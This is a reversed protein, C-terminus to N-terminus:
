ERPGSNESGRNWSRNSQGPIVPEGIFGTVTRIADDSDDYSISVDVRFLNEIGSESVVARWHWTTNAFDVDGSTASVEPIINALRLETIKNQAIWSAYTRERMSNSTDIMRGMKTAVATLSLAIIALAVMVEVLTFAKQGSRLM